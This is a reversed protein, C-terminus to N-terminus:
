CHKQMQLSSLYFSNFSFKSHQVRHFLRKPTKSTKFIMYSSMHKIVWHREEKCARTNISPFLGKSNYYVCMGSPLIPFSFNALEDFHFVRTFFHKASHERFESFRRLFRNPCSAIFHSMMIWSYYWASKAQKNAALSAKNYTTSFERRLPFSHLCL